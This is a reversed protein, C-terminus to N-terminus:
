KRNPSCLDRSIKDMENNLQIKKLKEIEGFEKQLKDLSRERVNWLEKMTSYYQKKQNIDLNSHMANLSVKTFFEAQESMKVM